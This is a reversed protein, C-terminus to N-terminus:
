NAGALAAECKDRRSNELLKWISGVFMTGLFAEAGLQLTPMDFRTGVMISTFAVARAMLASSARLTVGNKLLLLKEPDGNVNKATRNRYAVIVRTTPFSVTTAALALLASEPMTLFTHLVSDGFTDGGVTAYMINKFVSFVGFNLATNKGFDWALQLANRFKGIESGTTRRAIEDLEFKVPPSTTGLIKMLFPSNWDIIGLTAAQLIACALIPAIAAPTPSMLLETIKDGTMLVVEFSILSVRFHPSKLWDSFLEKSMKVKQKMPSRVKDLLKKTMAFFSRPVASAQDPEIVTVADPTHEDLVETLLLEAQAPDEVETSTINIERISSGPTTPVLRQQYIAVANESVPYDPPLDALAPTSVASATLFISLAISLVSFHIRKKRM